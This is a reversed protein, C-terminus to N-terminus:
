IGKEREAIADIGGRRSSHSTSGRAGARSARGCRFAACKGRVVDDRAAVVVGQAHQQAVLARLQRAIRRFLRDLAGQGIRSQVLGCDFSAGQGDIQQVLHIEHDLGPQALLDGAAARM